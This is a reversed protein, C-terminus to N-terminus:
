QDTLGLPRGLICDAQWRLSRLHRSLCGRQSLGCTLRGSGTTPILVLRKLHDDWAEPKRLFAATLLAAEREQLPQYQESARVNLGEHGARRM